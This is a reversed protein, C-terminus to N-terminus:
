TDARGLGVLAAAAEIASSSGVTPYRAPLHRARGRTKGGRDSRSAFSRHSRRSSM